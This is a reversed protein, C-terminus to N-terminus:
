RNELYRKISILMDAQNMKPKRIKPVRVQLAHEVNLQKTKRRGETNGQKRRKLLVDGNNRKKLETAHAILREETIKGTSHDLCRNACM